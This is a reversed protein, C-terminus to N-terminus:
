VTEPFYIILHMFTYKLICNSDIAALIRRKTEKYNDAIFTQIETTNQLGTWLSSSYNLCLHGLYLLDVINESVVLIIQM